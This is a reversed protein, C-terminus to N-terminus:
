RLCICVHRVDNHWATSSANPTLRFMLPTTKYRYCWPLCQLILRLSQFPLFSKQLTFHSLLNVHFVYYVMELVRPIIAPNFPRICAMVVVVGEASIVYFDCYLHGISFNRIYFKLAM